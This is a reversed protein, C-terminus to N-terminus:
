AALQIAWAPRPEMHSIGAHFCHWLKLDVQWSVSFDDGGWKFRSTRELWYLGCWAEPVRRSFSISKLEMIEHQSNLSPFNGEAEELSAGKVLLVEKVRWRGWHFVAGFKDWTWWSWSTVPRGGSMYNFINNEGGETISVCSRVCGSKRWFYVPPWLMLVM